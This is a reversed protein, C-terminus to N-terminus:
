GGGVFRVIELKDGEKLVVGDLGYEDLLDGNYEIALNRPKIGLRELLAILTDGPKAQRPEGNVTIQM